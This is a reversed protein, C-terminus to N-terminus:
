SVSIHRAAKYFINCNRWHLFVTIETIRSVAYINYQIEKYIVLKRGIQVANRDYTTNKTHTCHYRTDFVRQITLNRTGVHRHLKISPMTRGHMQLQCVCAYKMYIYTNRMCTRLFIYKNIHMDTDYLSVM